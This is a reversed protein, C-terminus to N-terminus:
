RYLGNVILATGLAGNGTASTACAYTIAVGFDIPPSFTETFAGNLSGSGAPVLFSLTPTTTGVTVSGAAVDFLQIFADVANINTVHLYYLGGGSTKMAQATEDGSSDFHPRLHLPTAM